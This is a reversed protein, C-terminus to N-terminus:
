IITNMELYANNRSDYDEEENNMLEVLDLVVVYDENFVKNYFNFLKLSTTKLQQETDGEFYIKNLIDVASQTEKQIVLLQNRMDILETYNRLLLVEQM